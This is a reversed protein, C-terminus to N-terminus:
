KVSVLMHYRVRPLPTSALPPRRGKQSRAAAIERRARARPSLGDYEDLRHLRGYPARFAIAAIECHRLCDEVVIQLASQLRQLRRAAGNV